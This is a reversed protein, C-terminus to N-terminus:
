SQLISTVSLKGSLRKKWTFLAVPPHSRGRPRRDFGGASPTGAQKNANAASVSTPRHRGVCLPGNLAGSAQPFNSVRVSWDGYGTERGVRLEGPPGATRLRGTTESTVCRSGWRRDLVTPPNLGGFTVIGFSIFNTEANLGMAQPLLPSCHLM